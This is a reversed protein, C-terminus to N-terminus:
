VKRQFWRFPLQPGREQGIPELITMHLGDVAIERQKSGNHGRCIAFFAAVLSGVGAIIGYQAQELFTEPGGLVPAPHVHPTLVDHASASLCFGLLAAACFLATRGIFRHSRM